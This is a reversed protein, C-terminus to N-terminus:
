HYHCGSGRSDKRNLDHELGPPAAGSARPLEQNPWRFDIVIRDKRNEGYILFMPVPPIMVTEQHVDPHDRQSDVWWGADIYEKTLKLFSEKKENPLRIYSQKAYCRRPNTTFKTPPLKIEFIYKQGPIDPKETPHLSRLRVQLDPSMKIPTWGLDIVAQVQDHVVSEDVYPQNVFISDTISPIPPQPALGSREDPWGYSGVMALEDTTLHLDDDPNYTPDYETIRFASPTPQRSLKTTCVKSAALIEAIRSPNVGSCILNYEREVDSIDATKDLPQRVLTTSPTSEPTIETTDTGVTPRSLVTDTQRISRAAPVHDEVADDRESWDDGIRLEEPQDRIALAIRPYKEHKVLSRRTMAWSTSPGSDLDRYHTKPAAQPMLEPVDSGPQAVRPSEPGALVYSENFVRYEREQHEGTTRGKREMGRPNWGTKRASELGRPTLPPPVDADDEESDSFDARPRTQRRPYATVGDLVDPPTDAFRVSKKRPREPLATGNPNPDRMKDWFAPDSTTITTTYVEQDDTPLYRNFIPYNTSITTTHPRPLSDSDDSKNMNRTTPSSRNTTSSWIDPTRLTSEGRQDKFVSWRFDPNPTDSRQTNTDASNPADRFPHTPQTRYFSDPSIPFQLGQLGSNVYNPCSTREFTTPYDPPRLSIPNDYSPPYSRYNSSYDPLRVSTLNDHFRPIPTDSFTPYSRSIPNLNDLLLPSNGWSLDTNIGVTNLETSNVLLQNSPVYSVSKAASPDGEEKIVVETKPTPTDDEQKVVIDPPPIEKPVEDKVAPPALDSPVSPPASTRTPPIPDSVTPAASTLDRAARRNRRNRNRSVNPTVPDRGSSRPGNDRTPPTTVPSYPTSAASNRPASTPPVDTDPTRPPSRPPSRTRIRTDPQPGDPPAFRFKKSEPDEKSKKEKPPHKRQNPYFLLNDMQLHIPPRLGKRYVVTQFVSVEKAGTAVYQVRSQFDRGLLIRVTPEQIEPAPVFTFPIHVTTFAKRHEADFMMMRGVAMGLDNIIKGNAIEVTGKDNPDYINDTMAERFWKMDKVFVYNGSAGSDLEAGPSAIRSGNEFDIITTMTMPPPTPFVLSTCAIFSRPLFGRTRPDDKDHEVYGARNRHVSVKESDTRSSSKGLRSSHSSDSDADSGPQTKVPTKSFRPDFRRRVISRIRGLLRLREAKTRPEPRYEALIDQRFQGSMCVERPMGPIRVDVLQTLTPGNPVQELVPVTQERCTPESYAKPDRPTKPTEVSRTIPHGRSRATSKSSSRSIPIDSIPFRFIPLDPFRFIPLDPFRFIPLDPFRFIPLDLNSLYSWSRSTLVRWSRPSTSPRPKLLRNSTALLFLLPLVSLRVRLIVCM